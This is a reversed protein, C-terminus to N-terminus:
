GARAASVRRTLLLRASCPTSSGASAVGLVTASMARRRELRCCLTVEQGWDVSSSFEVADAGALMWEDPTQSEGRLLLAACQVLAELILVSPVTTPPTAPGLEDGRPRWRATAVPGERAEVREVLRFPGNM